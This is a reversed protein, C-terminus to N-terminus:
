KGFDMAQGLYRMEWLGNSSAFVDNGAIWQKVWYTTKWLGNSSGFVDNEVIWQKVWIRRKGCDMAQGLYTM